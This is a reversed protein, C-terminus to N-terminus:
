TGWPFRSKPNEDWEDWNDQQVFLADDDDDVIGDPSFYSRKDPKVCKVPVTIECVSEGDTSMNLSIDSGNNIVVYDDLAESLLAVPM